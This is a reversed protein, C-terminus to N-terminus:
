KEGILRYTSVQFNVNLEQKNDFRPKLDLTKLRLVKGPEHEIDYLYSVLQTLLVKNLRVDVSIEEMLESPVPPREKLSDIKDKIGNKAALSELTTSIASDYGGNMLSEVSILNQKAEQFRDLERVINRSAVKSTEIGREMGGLKGRAIALPLSIIIIALLVVGILMFTQQRSDMNLYARYLNEVKLANLDLGKIM